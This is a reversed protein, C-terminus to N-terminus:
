ATVERFVRSQAIEERACHICMYGTFDPDYAEEDDLHAVAISEYYPIFAEVHNEAEGEHILILGVRKECFQCWDETVTENDVQVDRLTLRYMRGDEATNIVFVQEDM